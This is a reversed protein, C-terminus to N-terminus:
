QEDAVQKRSQRRELNEIGQHLEAQPHRQQLRKFQALIAAQRDRDGPHSRFFNPWVNDGQPAEKNKQAQQEFLRAMERPDYGARFAWDVGDQDADREDEPRFPRSMLKIMWPGQQFFQDPRFGNQFSKEMLKVRKLPLLQHGRDLHSLEHGVIGVLAAESGAADLLGEFFILTGGPCSRADVRPSKALLVKIKRYRKANAMFPRVTEVLSRLYEVDRGQSRVEIGEAKWGALGAALIQEGFQREEDASIPIKRLAERDEPADEGFMREFMREPNAFPVQGSLPSSAVTLNLTITLGLVLHLRLFM